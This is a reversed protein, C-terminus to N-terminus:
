ATRGRRPWYGFLECHREALADREFASLVDGRENRGRRLMGRVARPGAARFRGVLLAHHSFHHELRVWESLLTLELGNMADAMRRSKTRGRM